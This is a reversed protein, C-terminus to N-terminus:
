KSDGDGYRMPYSRMSRTNPQRQCSGGIVFRDSFGYAYGRYWRACM